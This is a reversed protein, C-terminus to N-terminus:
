KKDLKFCVLTMNGGVYIRSGQCGLFATDSKFPAEMTIYGPLRVSVFKKWGAGQSTVLFILKEGSTEDLIQIEGDLPLKQSTRAYIDYLGLGDEREFAVYSDKDVFSVHVPRRFGDTLFEHFIVRYSNASQELLLFRQDDIGSVIALRSADSSLACGLIISRRSGGPEFPTFVLQGQSDLLIVTGDLTGALVYGGAADICTLPAPFDYAWLENGRDDLATISNQESGIIFIRHDLFLPYGRPNKIELKQEKWPTRVSILNPKADYEAWLGASLSVNGKKAQNIIFQGDRDVYGFRGGLSFPLLEGALDEPAADVAYSSELSTIWQSVMISEQPIPQAAIFVYATFLVIGLIIWYKRKQRIVAEAECVGVMKYYTLPAPFELGLLIRPLIPAFAPDAKKLEFNEVFTLEVLRM